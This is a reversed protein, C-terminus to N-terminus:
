AAKRRLKYWIFWGVAAVLAVIIVLDFKHLYERVMHWNEGLVYGGYTFLISWPLMGLFSYFLFRGFNMGAVGAPLSIFTRVGPLLRSFSVTLEGKEAFWRDAVDMEHKSILVYKGYRELLGRGGYKGVMYAVISGFLGGLQGALVAETFTIKGSAALFGGFPLVIESPLPICASELAMGLAIGWYGLPALLNVVWMFVTELV